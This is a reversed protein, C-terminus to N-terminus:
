FVFLLLFVLYLCSLTLAVPVSFLSQSGRAAARGPIGKQVNVELCRPPSLSSAAILRHPLCVGYRGVKQGQWFWNTGPWAKFLVSNESLPSKWAKLYLNHRIFFMSDVMDEMQKWGTIIQSWMWKRKDSHGCCSELHGRQRHDVERQNVNCISGTYDKPAQTWSGEVDIAKLPGEQCQIFFVSVNSIRWLIVVVM